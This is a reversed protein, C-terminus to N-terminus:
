RLGGEHIAARDPWGERRLMKATRERLRRMAERRRATDDEVECEEHEYRTVLHPVVRKGCRGCVAVDNLEDWM